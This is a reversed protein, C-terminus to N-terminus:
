YVIRLYRHQSSQVPKPYLGTALNLKLSNPHTLLMECMSYVLILFAYIIRTHFSLSSLVSPLILIENDKECSDVVQGQGSGILSTCARVSGHKKNALNTKCSGGM